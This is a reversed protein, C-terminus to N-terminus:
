CYTWSFRVLDVVEERSLQGSCIVEVGGNGLTKSDLVSEYKGRLLKGLKEDCKVEIRLPNTGTWIVLFIRGEKKLVRLKKEGQGEDAVLWENEYEGGFSEVLELIEDESVM